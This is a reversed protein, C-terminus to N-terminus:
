PQQPEPSNELAVKLMAVIPDALALGLIGFLAGFLLQAALTIAPALAVARQEVFPTLINGEIFQVTLYVALASLGTTTDISFGVLVILTGSILAGINPIFALAATILALVGALPVGALMLGILTLLGDAAMAFLRGAAWRRLMWAMKGILASVRPRARRPTLWEIGREYLRPEGAIFLGLVIILLLSTLAGVATGLVGLLKTLSGILQAGLGALPGRGNSGLIDELGFRDFLAALQWLQADLTRALQGAQAVLQVGAFAVFGALLAFFLSAIITLRAWRPGFWLRGLLRTGGDLLAAFVLGGFIILLAGALTWALFLAAAMGLWVAAQKVTDRVFPDHVEVPSATTPTDSDM